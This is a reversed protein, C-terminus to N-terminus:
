EVVANLQVPQGRREAMISVEGGRALRHFFYELDQPSRFLEGDVGKIVDGTRIGAKYLVDKARLRGVSFGALSGNDDQPTLNLEEVMSRIVDPTSPVESSSVQFVESTEVIQPAETGPAAARAAARGGKGPEEDVSLRRRSGDANEVVVNNRLIARILVKGVREQEQYMVQERTSLTEIIAYNRAPDKGVATGILKLGIDSGALAINELDLQDKTAAAAPAVGFLNRKWVVRYQQLPPAPTKNPSPQGASAAVPRPAVRAAPELLDFIESGVTWGLYLVLLGLMANVAHIVWREVSPVWEAKVHQRRHVSSFPATQSASPLRPPEVPAADSSTSLDSFALGSGPDAAAHLVVEASKGHEGLNLIDQVLLGPERSDLNRERLCPNFAFLANRQEDTPDLAGALFREELIKLRLESRNLGNQRLITRIVSESLKQGDSTLSSALRRAGCAPHALAAQIVRETLEPSVPPPTNKKKAM